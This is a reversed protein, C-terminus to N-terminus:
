VSARRIADLMKSPVLFVSSPFFHRTGPPIIKRGVAMFSGPFGGTGPTGPVVLTALIHM